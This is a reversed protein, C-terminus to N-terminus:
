HSRAFSNEVLLRALHIVTWITKVACATSFECGFFASRRHVVKEIAEANGVVEHGSRVNRESNAGLTNRLAASKQV